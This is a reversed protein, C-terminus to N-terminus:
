SSSSSYPEQLIIGQSPAQIWRVPMLEPKKIARRIKDAYAVVRVRFNVQLESLENAGCAAAIQYYTPSAKGPRTLRIVADKVSSDNLDFGPLVEHAMKNRLARLDKFWDHVDKHIIDLHLAVDMRESFNRASRKAIEPMQLREGIANQLLGDLHASGVIVAARDSDAFIEQCLLCYYERDQETELHPIRRVLQFVPDKCKSSPSM